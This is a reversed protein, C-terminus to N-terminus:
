TWNKLDQEYEEIPNSNYFDELYKIMEANMQDNVQNEIENQQKEIQQLTQRFDKFSFLHMYEMFLNAAKKRMDQYEIDNKNNGNRKLCNRISFTIDALSYLFAETDKGKGIFVDLMALAIPSLEKISSISNNSLGLEENIKLNNTDLIDMEGLLTSYPVHFYNHYAEVTSLSLSIDNEAKDVTSQSIHLEQALKTTSYPKKVKVTKGERRSVTEETRNLRLWKFINEEMTILRMKGTTTLNQIIDPFSCHNNWIYANM